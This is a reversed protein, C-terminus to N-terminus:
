EDDPQCQAGVYVVEALSQAIRGNRMGDEKARYKCHLADEEQVIGGPVQELGQGGCTEDTEYGEDASAPREGLNLLPPQSPKSSQVYACTCPLCKQVLPPTLYFSHCCRRTTAPEDVVYTYSIPM